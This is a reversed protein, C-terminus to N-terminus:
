AIDEQDPVRKRGHLMSAVLNERHRLSSFVVGAIHLAVLFFLTNSLGEHLEEVWKIGWYADTTALWGSVSVLVVMLMLLLIMYAGLPNHGVHRAEAHALLSRAYNLTTAPSRVFQRFSAYPTGIFGWVIRALVVALAAYGLWEHWDGAHRTLWAAAVSAVLTWHAIRVFADWVPFTARSPEGATM